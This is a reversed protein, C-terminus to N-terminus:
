NLEITGLNEFINNKLELSLKTTHENTRSAIQSQFYYLTLNIKETSPNEFSAFTLNPLKIVKADKLLEKGSYSVLNDKWWVDGSTLHTIISLEHLPRKISSEISLYMTANKDQTFPTNFFDAGQYSVAIEAENFRYLSLTKGTFNFKSVDEGYANLSALWEKGETFTIVLDYNSPKNAHLGTFKEVAPVQITGDNNITLDQSKYGCSKGQHVFIGGQYKCHIELVAKVKTLDTLGDASNLKLTSGPLLTSAQLTFPIVLAALGTLLIKKM